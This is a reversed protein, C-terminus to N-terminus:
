YLYWKRFHRSALTLGLVILRISLLAALFSLAFSVANAPFSGVLGNRLEQSAIAFCILSGIAVAAIGALVVLAKVFFDHLSGLWRMFGDQHDKRVLKVGTGVTRRVNLIIQLVRFVLIYLLIGVVSWLLFLAVQQTAAYGDLKDLLHQLPHDWLSFPSADLDTGLLQGSFESVNFLMLALFAIIAEGAMGYIGPYFLHRLTLQRTQSENYSVTETNDTKM